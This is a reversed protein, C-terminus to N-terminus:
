RWIVQGNEDVSGSPTSGSGARKTLAQVIAVLLGCGGGVIAGIILPSILPLGPASPPLSAAISRIMDNFTPADQAARNTPCTCTVMLSQSGDPIAVQMLTLQDGMIFIDYRGVFAQIGAFQETTVRINTPTSGLQRGLQSLMASFQQENQENIALAGQSVIVNVNDSFDAHNPNFVMVAYQNLDINGMKALYPQVKQKAAEEQDRSAVMWGFPYSISFGRPSKFSNVLGASGAIPPFANPQQAGANAAILVFLAASLWSVRVFKHVANMNIVGIGSM